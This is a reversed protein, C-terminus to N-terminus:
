SGSRNRYDGDSKTYKGNKYMHVHKGKLFAPKIGLSRRKLAVSGSNTKFKRAVEADSVKGLLALMEQTFIVQRGRGKAYKDRVNDSHTGLFLHKPNCCARVDCTHCILLGDPITGYSLRWAIRHAKERKLNMQFVGYGHTGISGKFLWCGKSKTVKAWFDKPGNRNRLGAAIRGDAM